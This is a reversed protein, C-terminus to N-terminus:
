RLAAGQLSVNGGGSTPTLQVTIQRGSSAARYQLTLVGDQRTKKASLTGAYDAASGDSLHASVKVSTNQAGLYITLTRTTTDAPASIQLGKGNGGVSVGTTTSGTTAPMGNTWNITRADGYYTKWSAGGVRAIDSIQGGGSMSHVYSPWRAWDTSGTSTLDVSASSAVMSGTLAGGSSATTVSVYNTYTKTNSGASGSVALSVTYVGAASYTHSPNQATSTTGDGFNWSYSSITGTSANNFNVTLPAMGSTPTGSFQALPATATSTTTASATNSYASLNGAADTARVRYSYSTAAALGTSTFTTGTSTGIQAFSTCGAGQCREIRYGTVGVNDSSAGWTLNISASGSASAALSAPSTPASTDSAPATVTIYNAATKTNSGGSGTVTLSVTYSGAASYVHSPNQATSSTGDGFSWSYNTISGTSTSTFNMALPAVGSTASATFNAAPVGAPVTAVADNSYGSEVHSADYATVAFHYTAGETLNSITRATTNGVDIKSPYNGASPGYYLMYGALSSSTVPDWALTASGAFARCALLTLLFFLTAAHFLASRAKPRNQVAVQSM